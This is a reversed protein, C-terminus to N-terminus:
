LIEKSLKWQMNDPMVIGVDKTLAEKVQDVAISLSIGLKSSGYFILSNTFSNGLHM